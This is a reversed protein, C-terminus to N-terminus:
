LEEHRPFLGFITLLLWLWLFIIGITKNLKPILVYAGAYATIIIVWVFVLKNKNAM